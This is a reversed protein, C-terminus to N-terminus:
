SHGKVGADKSFELSQSGSLVYDDGVETGNVQAVADGPINYIERLSKKVSGVNKGSLNFYGENSGHIVRVQDLVRNARALVSNANPASAGLTGVSPSSTGVPLQQQSM